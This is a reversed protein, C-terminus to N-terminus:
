FTGEVLLLGLLRGAQRWGQAGLSFSIPRQLLSIAVLCGREKLLQYDLSFRLELALPVSAQRCHRPRTTIRRLGQFTSHLGLHEIRFDDVAMHQTAM